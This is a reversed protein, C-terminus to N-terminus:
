RRAKRRKAVPRALESVLPVPSAEHVLEVEAMAERPGAQGRMVRVRLKWDLENGSGVVGGVEFRTVAWTAPARAGPPRILFGLGGGAEVALQFRRAIRDHVEKLWGITVVVGPARLAQEWVWLGTAPDGARVVVTRDLPVGLGAAGVPYFEHGDDLVVIAGGDRALHAAVALALTMAGSSNADGRWEVLSGARLGRGALVRDLSAFGTSLGAETPGRETLGEIGRIRERLEQLREPSLPARM